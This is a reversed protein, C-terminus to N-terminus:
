EKVQNSAYAMVKEQSFAAPHDLVGTMAGEHLVIIRDAMGLLEEMESSIMIISIGQETLQNMIQYIEYKAGVDIGRTPEDIILIRPQSALWKSMVVKQQNGGSLNRVLQDLSPTKIKLRDTYQRVIENERKENVIMWRSISKEVPLAINERISLNLLVGQLKRDEPLLVIGHKVADLPSKIEVPKGDLLIEGSERKDAGFIMRATETRGSGILGAVGLIEGKHLQFNIGHVGSGALNRVELIVKGYNHNRPPYTENLERGVMTKILEAESMEKTEKTVVMQGDRMISIRDSLEYVEPIRHSIYIITVGKEKLRRILSFLKRVDQSTLPATPEDMVLIKAEHCVAKAIEVFQMQAMSLDKVKKQPDIEIELEDFLHKTERIMAPMDILFGNGLYRGMYINEAISLDPLLNLEQYIVEVGLEKSRHPSIHTFKEGDITFTGTDPNTSGAIVKILTSKGAGNEGMLAHIEGRLLTFSVDNLAIVGPYTKYLHDVSLIVDGKEATIPYDM